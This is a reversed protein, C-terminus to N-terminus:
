YWDLGTLGQSQRHNSYKKCKKAPTPRVQKLWSMIYRYYGEDGAAWCERIHQLWPTVKTMDVEPVRKAQFGPWMNFEDKLLGIGNPKFVISSFCPLTNLHREVFQHLAEVVLHM